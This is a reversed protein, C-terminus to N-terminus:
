RTVDGDRLGTPSLVVEAGDSLGSLIEVMRGDSLGIQVPQRRYRGEIVAYVAADLERGVVAERPVVITGQKRGAAISVNAFMGGKLKFQPDTVEVKMASTRNRIDIIPTLSRVLGTFVENPYADVGVSVSQGLTIAGILLEPVQVHLDFEPPIIAVLPAGAATPAGTNVFVDSILGAVPASVSSERLQLRAVELASWAHEVASEAAKREADSVSQNVRQLRREAAEVAARAEELETPVSSGRSLLLREETQALEQRAQALEPGSAPDRARNLQEQANVLAQQAQTVVEPAPVAAGSGPVPTARQASVLREVRDRAVAVASELQAVTEPRGQELEAVRQRANAVARVLETRQEQTPASEVSALRAKAARLQADAEAAEEPRNGARLGALRAEAGALAANARAVEVELSPRDLELLADGATVRAGPVASVQMVTGPIRATVMTPPKTRVETSFNLVGNIESRTARTTLITSERAPAPREAITGCGALLIACCSALM